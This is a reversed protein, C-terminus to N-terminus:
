FILNTPHFYGALLLTLLIIRGADEMTRYVSMQRWIQELSVGMKLNLHLIQCDLQIYFLEGGRSLCIAPETTEEFGSCIAKLVAAKDLKGITFVASIM